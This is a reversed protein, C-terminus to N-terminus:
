GAESALRNLTETLKLLEKVKDFYDDAGLELCAAKLQPSTHNSMVIVRTKGLNPSARIARIVATGSGTKLQLDVIVIDPKLERVGAIASEESDARGVVEIKGPECILERLMEAVPASDDAIFVSLPATRPM